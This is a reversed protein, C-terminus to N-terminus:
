DRSRSELLRYGDTQRTKDTQVCRLKWLLTLPPTVIDHFLQAVRLFFGTHCREGECLTCSLTRYLALPIRTERFPINWPNTLRKAFCIKPSLESETEETDRAPFPCFFILTQGTLTHKSPSLTDKQACNNFHCKRLVSGWLTIGLGSKSFFKM